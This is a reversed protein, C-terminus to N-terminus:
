CLCVVNHYRMRQKRLLKKFTYTIHVTPDQIICQRASSLANDSGPYHVTARQIICQRASSLASDLVPYHVTPYKIICQRASSLASDLAPYHVTPCQIICQRASPKELYEDGTETTSLTCGTSPLSEPM